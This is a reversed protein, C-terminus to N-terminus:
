EMILNLRKNGASLHPHLDLVVLVFRFTQGVCCVNVSSNTLKITIPLYAVFLMSRNSTMHSIHLEFEFRISILSIYEKTM